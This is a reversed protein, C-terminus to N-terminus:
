RPTGADGRADFKARASKISPWNGGIWEVLQQMPELVSLGLETLEYEVRPPVEAFVERTLFGDRELNRLTTTLMRQSIGDVMKQLESFRAKGRPSRALMVVLLISWKDGVKTLFERVAKTEESKCMLAVPELADHKSARKM